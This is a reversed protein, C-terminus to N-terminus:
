LEGGWCARSRETELKAYYADKWKAVKNFQKSRRQGFPKLLIGAFFGETVKWNHAEHESKRVAKMFDHYSSFKKGNHTYRYSNRNAKKM